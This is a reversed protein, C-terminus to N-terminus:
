QCCAMASRKPACRFAHAAICVPLCTGPGNVLVLSPWATWVIRLAVLCAWATTLVSTTWSQGVERSRPIIYVSPTPTTPTPLKQQSAAPPPARNATSSTAALNGSSPSSQSNDAPATGSSQAAWDEEHHKVKTHAMADTAAAVYVRPSYRNLDLADVIRFMEATHGGAHVSAHAQSVLHGM